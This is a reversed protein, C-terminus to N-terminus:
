DSYALHPLKYDNPVAITISGMVRVQCALREGKKKLKGLKIFSQEAPTYGSLHEEGRRILVTCTTCKGKKGCAHMWDTQSLLIDLLKESKAEWHITKSHLNEIVVEPM